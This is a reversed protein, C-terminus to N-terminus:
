LEGPALSPCGPCNSGVCQQFDIYETVSGTPAAAECTALCSQDNQLCSTTVCEAIQLCATDNPCSTASTCCNTEACTACSSAAASFIQMAGPCSGGETV